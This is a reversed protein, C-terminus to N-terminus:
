ILIAAIRTSASLAAPRMKKATERPVRSLRGFYVSRAQLLGRRANASMVGVRGALRPRM